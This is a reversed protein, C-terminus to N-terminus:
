DSPEGVHQSHFGSLHVTPTAQTSSLQEGDQVRPQGQARHGEVGGWGGALRRRLWTSAAGHAATPPPKQPPAVSEQGSRRRGPPGQPGLCQTGLEPPQHM